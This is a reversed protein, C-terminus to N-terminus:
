SVSLSIHSLSIWTLASHVHVCYLVYGEVRWRGSYLIRGGLATIRRTEEPSDPKHDKSLSVFSGDRKVIIARSDGANACVVRKGGVVVCVCATTGDENGTSLFDKDITVFTSRLAEPLNSHFTKQGNLYSSFWNCAYTSALAGAHGDFVGYVSIPQKSSSISDTHVPFRDKLALRDGIDGVKYLKELMDSMDLSGKTVPKPGELTSGVRDLLIRDEM